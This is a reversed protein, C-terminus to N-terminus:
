GGRLRERADRLRYWLPEVVLDFTGPHRLPQGGFKRKFRSYGAAEPHAAEDAAEYQGEDIELHAKNKLAIALDEDLGKTVRLVPLLQELEARLEKTNGNYRYVPTMRVRARLTEIHDPGLRSTGEQIAQTLVEAAASTDQLSLMSTGLINLLEVRLAPRDQLRRDVRAKAQKLWDVASLARAGTTYPTADEFLTVLVDKVEVARAKETM